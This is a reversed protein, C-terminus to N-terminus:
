IEEDKSLIVSMVDRPSNQLAMTQRMGELGLFNWAQKALRCKFFLHGGCEDDRMCVPCIPDIKMGRRVLNRRLPHSNHVFRRMFHKVKNPCTLKWIRKWVPDPTIRSSGQNTRSNQSRVTDNRCVKYASRVSFRGKTDYHWAM